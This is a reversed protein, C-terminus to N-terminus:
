KLEEWLKTFVESTKVVNENESIKSILLSQNKSHDKGCTVVIGNNKIACIRGPPGRFDDDSITATKIFYKKEKYFFFSNPYPDSLGRILNFIDKRDMTWDIKGDKPFRRSCFFGKPLTNQSIPNLDNNEIQIIIDHLMQGSIDLLKQYVDFATDHVDIQVKKQMLIDGTDIGEDIYHITLGSETEGNIVAWNIPAFGRYKPILSDHLNLIGFKPIQFISKPLIRRWGVSFILDPNHSKIESVDSDTIKTIESVPINKEDCIKKISDYWVSEHKDMDLPHTYVKVIELKMDFFTNIAKIGWNQHAFLIVKM